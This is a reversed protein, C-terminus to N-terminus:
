HIRTSLHTTDSRKPPPPPPRKASSGGSVATGTSSASSMRALPQVPLYPHTYDCRRLEVCNGYESEAPAAAASSNSPVFVNEYFSVSPDDSVGPGYHEAVWARVSNEKYAAPVPAPPPADRFGLVSHPTVEEDKCKQAVQWKKQMVRQLDNLFARPPTVTCGPATLKQPIPQQQKLSSRLPDIRKQLLPPKHPPPSPSRAVRDDFTIRRNKKSPSHQLTASPATPSVPSLSASNAYIGNQDGISDRRPFTVIAPKPPVRPAGSANKLCPKLMVPVEPPLQSAPAPVENLPLAPPTPPPIEEPSPVFASPEDAHDFAEPPPPPLADHDSEIGDDPSTFTPPPPLPLLDVDPTDVAEPIPLRSPACDVTSSTSSTSNMSLTSNMSAVSNTSTKRRITNVEETLSKRFSQRFTNRAEIATQGDVSDEIEKVLLRTTSTLPLKPTM